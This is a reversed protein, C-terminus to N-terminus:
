AFHKDLDEVGTLAPGKPKDKSAFGCTFKNQPVKKEWVTKSGEIPGHAKCWQTAIRKRATVLAQLVVLNDVFAKPDDAIEKAEMSAQPCFNIMDCWACADPLPWAERCDQQFMKVAEEIRGRLAVETSLGPLRPHEEKREFKAYSKTGWMSEYYWFHITNIEQYEPQEFLILAIDQAQFSDATESNSRRKFGTKFDVVHISNKGSGLLDIATTNVIGPATETEPVVIISVQVEVGIVQVHYESLMDGIHRAHRIAMPQINPKVKPLNDVFWDPVMQIDNKCAEFARDVLDHIQSGCEALRGDTSQLIVKSMDDLILSSSADIINREWPFVEFGGAEAKLSDWLISLYGQRPCTAYQELRSRDLIIPKFKPKPQEM